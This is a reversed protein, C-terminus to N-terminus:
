CIGSVGASLAALPIAIYPSFSFSSNLIGSLYGAGGVFFAFGFNVEHTYGTLIDWSMAFIAYIVAIKIVEVYFINDSLLAFLAIAMLIALGFPSQNKLSLISSKPISM